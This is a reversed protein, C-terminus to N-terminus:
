YSEDKEEDDPEDDLGKELETDDSELEEDLFEEAMRVPQVMETIMM